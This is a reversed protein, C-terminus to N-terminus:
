SRSESDTRAGLRKNIAHVIKAQESEAAFWDRPYMHVADALEIVLLPATQNWSATRRLLFVHEIRELPVSVSGRRCLGDPLVVRESDIQFTGAPNVQTRVFSYVHWGALLLLIGGVYKGVIGLKLILMAGVGLFFLGWGVHRWRSHSLVM